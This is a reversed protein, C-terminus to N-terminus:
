ILGHEAFSYCDSATVIFHDLVKVDILALAEKLRTTLSRDAASPDCLGSPHNHYFVVAAANAEFVHQVVVRPYVSAGNITGEFLEAFRLLRHRHDLFIVGFCENKRAGLKLQLFRRFDHPSSFEEGPACRKALIGLAHAIVQDDNVVENRLAVVNNSM